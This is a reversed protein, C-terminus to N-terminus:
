CKRRRKGVIEIAWAPTGHGRIPVATWDYIDSGLAAAAPSSTTESFIHKNTWGVAASAFCCSPRVNNWRTFLSGAPRWHLLVPGPAPTKLCALLDWTKLSGSLQRIKVSFMAKTRSSSIQFHIFTTGSFFALRGRVSRFEESVNANLRPFYRWVHM